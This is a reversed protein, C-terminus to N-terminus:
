LARPSVDIGVRKLDQVMKMVDIETTIEDPSTDYGSLGRTPRLVADGTGEGPEMGLRERETNESSVFGGDPRRSFDKPSSRVVSALKGSADKMHYGLKHGLREIRLPGRGAVGIHFIFDYGNEPAPPFDPDDMDPLIPPRLHLRPVINLVGQYTM